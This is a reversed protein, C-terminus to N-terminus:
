CLAYAIANMLARAYRMDRAVGRMAFFADGKGRRARLMARLAMKAGRMVVRTDKVCSLLARAARM